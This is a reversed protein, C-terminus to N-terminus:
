HGLFRDLPVTRENGPCLHRQATELDPFVRAKQLAVTYSHSSGEKAVFAGDHRVIVHKM